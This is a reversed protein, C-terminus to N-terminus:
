VADELRIQDLIFGVGVLVPPWHISDFTCTDHCFCIWFESLFVCFRLLSFPFRHMMMMM